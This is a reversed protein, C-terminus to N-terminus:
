SYFWSLHQFINYLSKWVCLIYSSSFDSAKWLWSAALKWRHTHWIVLHSNYTVWAEHFDNGLSLAHLCKYWSNLTNIQRTKFKVKLHWKKRLHPYILKFILNIQPNKGFNQTLTHTHIHTYMHTHTFPTNHYAHQTHINMTHAYTPAHWLVCTSILSCGPNHSKGEVKNPSITKPTWEQTYCDLQGVLSQLSGQRKGRM